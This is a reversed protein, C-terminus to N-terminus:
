ATLWAWTIGLLSLSESFVCITSQFRFYQSLMPEPEFIASVGMAWVHVLRVTAGPEGISLRQWTKSKDNWDLRSKWTGMKTTSENAVLKAPSQMRWLNQCLRFFFDLFEQTVRKEKCSKLGNPPSNSTSLMMFNRLVSTRLVEWWTGPSHDM